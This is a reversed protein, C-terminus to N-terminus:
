KGRSPLKAREEPSLKLYKEVGSVLRRADTNLVINRHVEFGATVFMTALSGVMLAICVGEEEGASIQAETIYYRNDLSNASPVRWAGGSMVPTTTGAPAMPAEWLFPRPVTPHEDAYNNNFIDCPKPLSSLQQATNTLQDECLVLGANQEHQNDAHTSPGMLWTLAALGAGASGAIAAEITRRM